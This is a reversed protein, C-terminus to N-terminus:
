EEHPSRGITLVYDGWALERQDNTALVTLGRQRQATIITDVLARGAADFMATPEDLLLVTPQHVLALAYKLRLLMGSSYSAVPESTRGALGVQELQELLAATSRKLGRAAAVFQLNELATLERYMMMEPAVMGIQPRMTRPTLSQGGCTYHITGVTPQELGCFLRLLTSKGSGNPGSVVLVDGSQLEGALHQWVPRSGYTKAVNQWVLRLPAAGTVNM